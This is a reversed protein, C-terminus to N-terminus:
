NNELRLGRLYVNIKRLNPKEPLNSNEVSKVLRSDLDIIVNSLEKRDYGESDRTEDETKLKVLKPVIPYDFKQNLKNIDSEVTGEEFLNIGTMYTRLAYLDRKIGKGGTKGSWIDRAFNLYHSNLKKSLIHSNVTDKLGNFEPSAFLILDSNPWEVRNGNSKSAIKFYHGVEDVSADMIRDDSMYEFTPEGPKERIGLFKSTPAIYVGRIDVDSNKSPFGFNHAGSVMLFLPKGFESLKELIGYEKLKESGMQIIEKKEDM